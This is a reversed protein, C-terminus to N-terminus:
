IATLGGGGSAFSVPGEQSHLRAWAVPKDTGLM